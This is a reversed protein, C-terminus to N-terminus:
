YKSFDTKDYLDDKKRAMMTGRIRAGDDESLIEGVYAMARIVDPYNGAGTEDLANRLNPFHRELREMAVGALRSIRPLDAGLEEKAKKKMDSYEDYRSHLMSQQLERAFNFGYEAIKCAHENSLNLENALASYSAYRGDDIEFGEPLAIDYKIGTSGENVLSPERKEGGQVEDESFLQLDFIRDFHGM